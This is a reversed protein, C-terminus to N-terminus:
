RNQDTEADPRPNTQEAIRGATGTKEVIVYGDSAAVIGELGPQQHGPRILFQRPNSRVRQYVDAPVAITETCAADACECIFRASKGESQWIHGLREAQENVERFLAENRAAREEWLSM